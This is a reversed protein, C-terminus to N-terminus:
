SHSSAGEDTSAPRLSKRSPSSAVQCSGSGDAQHHVLAMDWCSSVASASRLTTRREHGASAFGPKFGVRGAAGRARRSPVSARRLHQARDLLGGNRHDSTNGRMLSAVSPRTPSFTPVARASRGIGTSPKAGEDHGAFLANKRTLAHPRILNEVRNSDLEVRGDELFVCLPEWSKLIYRVAEGMKSSGTLREKQARLWAGLAGTLPKSRAHRAARREDPGRGRIEAEIAYLAAIRRLAEEAVPSGAKPTADILKRRAHSWCQALM